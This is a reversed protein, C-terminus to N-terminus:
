NKKQIKKYIKLTSVHFFDINSKFGYLDSNKILKNWVKNISFVKPKLNIFVNPRIIQLGTYIYKLKKKNRRNVLNDDLNFDGKFSKDFSKKKDVILISCKKQKSILDKEMIKLEKIYEVRWITDPNITLFPKNSFYKIANLIGGGTDLIKKKEKIITISLNFKNNDLYDVIQDALYHTNIIVEKIGFKILFKLTNSLLTEQGIKLLPKPCNKTIPRLRKGYGACLIMAKMM